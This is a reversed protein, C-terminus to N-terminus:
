NENSFEGRVKEFLPSIKEKTIPPLSNFKKELSLFLKKDKTKSFKKFGVSLENVLIGSYLGEIKEYLKSKEGLSLRSYMKKVKLYIEKAKLVEESDLYDQAETIRNSIRFYDDSLKAGKSFIFYGLVLAFLILGFIGFYGKDGSNFVSFGTISSSDSESYVQVFSFKFESLDNFNGDNGLVYIIEKVDSDFSIVNDRVMEYNRNKIELSDSFDELLVDVFYSDPMLEFESNIVRKVIFYTSIAGDLNTVAVEYFESMVGLEEDSLLDSTKKLSKDLLKEDLNSDILLLAERQFDESFVQMENKSQIIELSAPFKREIANLKVRFSDIRKELDEKTLDQEKLNLVGQKISAIEKVFTETNDDLGLYSFLEEEKEGFDQALEIKTELEELEVLFSDVKGRLIPNLGSELDEDSDLSMGVVEVSLDGENGAEDVASVRYYYPQGNSVLTDIYNTDDTEKYYDSYDTNEYESRYIRYEEADEIEGWNLKVKGEYNIVELDTILSPRLFDYSFYAGEKIETGVKNELDYGKFRFSLVGEGIKEDLVIKGNWDRLSGELTLSNYSIGDYSYELVPTQSVYKSTELNVMIEEENIPENTNIEIKANVLSKIRLNVEMKPYPGTGDECWIYFTNTGDPLDLFSVSNVYGDVEDFINEVSDLQTSYFCTSRNTTIIELFISSFDITRSNEVVASEDYRFSILQPSASIFSLTAVLLIGLIVLNAFRKM